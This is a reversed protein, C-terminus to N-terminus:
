AEAPRWVLFWPERRGFRTALAVGVGFVSAASWILTGVVPILRLAGLVLLGIVVMALDGRLLKRSALQERTRYGALLTGAAHFVAVMGFVKTLIGFVGLAVLLPIGLLYPVLYSFLIASLVFSTVAVLGLAFCYLASARIEISAVRVERAGLLTLAVSVALWGLLLALVVASRTLSAAAGELTTLPFVRGGIRGPDAAVSGGSHIVNGNVRGGAGFLVAGGIVLLDGSIVANVQASGGVVQANGAVPEDIVTDGFFTAHGAALPVSLRRENGVAGAPAVILLVALLAALSTSVIVLRKFM